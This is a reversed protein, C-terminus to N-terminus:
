PRALTAADTNAGCVVVAVREGPEPVYRGSHLAAYAAAAGHESPVRFEDWLATRAAVIEDDTVMVPVPAEAEVASFALDGLRRAGLSDSAVGSVAVDVPRGADIARHLTPCQEPEVVVVRARGLASAAVGAYLGGGGVAVVITDISPEDELLEEALTGAGAAVDVQDYAHALAAGTEDAFEVSARHAEAFEAGVRRVEAGYAEIRDVKVQPAAEPVFVNARVGLERAAFAQALGANGGSAVVIGADTIEGSELGALQRNFAGRTKFVGCHQLLELKLWLSGDASTQWLPTRRVRGEIRSAAAQVDRRTVTM